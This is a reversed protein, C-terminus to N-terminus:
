AETALPELSLGAQVLVPHAVVIRRGPAVDLGIREPEDVSRADVAVRELVRPPPDIRPPLKTERACNYTADDATNRGIIVTGVARAVNHGACNCTCYRTCEAPITSGTVSGGCARSGRRRPLDGSVLERLAAFTSDAVKETGGTKALCRIPLLRHQYRGM